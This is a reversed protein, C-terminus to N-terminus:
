HARPAGRDAGGASHGGDARRPPHGVRDAPAHVDRGDRGDRVDGDVRAGARLGIVGAVILGLSVLRQPTRPEGLLLMGVLATGTAGIGTWVAYGTGAPLVRLAQALLWLSAGAAAVTLPVAWFRQPGAAHKLGLAFAIELMGAVLLYTWARADSM